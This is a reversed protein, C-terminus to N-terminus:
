EQHIGNRNTNSVENSGAVIHLLARCIRRYYDLQRPVFEQATVQRDVLSPSDGTSKAEVSVGRAQVMPLRGEFLALMDELDAEYLGAVEEQQLQYEHLPRQDLLGFISSVERDIFPVGKLNGQLEERTDGIPILQRFEAMVGLEEQLERAAMSMNEGAILHGAATIDYLDPYTDKSSQRQQFLLYSRAGEQRVIWCHFSHHWYGMRHTDHRSATGIWRDEEDYIDFREETM